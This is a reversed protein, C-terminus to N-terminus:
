TNEIFEVIKLFKPDKSKTKFTDFSVPNLMKLVGMALSQIEFNSHHTHNSIFHVDNIDPIYELMKFLAIQEELVLNEFNLMLITKAEAVNLRTLVHITKVRIETNQHNLLDLLADKSENQNYIEALKLAFNVITDNSSKLWPQIDSIEQDDFRQLIELLQIQNWESLPQELTNLFELGKFHFLNVLYLQIENRVEKKPHNIYKVVEDHLETVHFQKLQRIGMAIIEWKKSKLKTLADSILDTQYYLEKISDAVEGSIENRLKIFTTIIIKRKFSNSASKKLESIIIQREKNFEEGDNESFIYNILDTEFKKKYISEVRENYSLRGRLYKLNIILAIIFLFIISSIIWVLQIIPASQEFYETLYQNDM